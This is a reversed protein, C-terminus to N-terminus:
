LAGIAKMFPLIVARVFPPHFLWFAPGATCLMTFLWGRIGRALGLRKGIGSHEALMGLGQVLFFTSPLGYGGRAPVSIVLEHILGSIGFAALTALKGNTRRALPRFVNDFALRNFAGNWRRGWFEGLSPALIPANMIPQANIGRARWFWALIAFLGFHLMFIMGIMGAWGCLLDSKMGRAAFWLLVSGVSFNLIAIEPQVKPVAAASKPGLFEKADMGPWGFLYALQRWKECKPVRAFTLWKCGAFICFALLWMFGWSPLFGRVAFAVATLVLLPLLDAHSDARRIKCAGNLCNRRAAFWRYSRDILRFCDPIQAVLWLPWAWWIRRALRIVAEAGGTISGDHDLLRMEELPENPSLGLKEMAWPDQLPVFRCQRRALMKEYRRATAACFRCDADYFVIADRTQAGTNITIETM